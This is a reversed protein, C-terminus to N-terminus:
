HNLFGYELDSESFSVQWDSSQQFKNRLDERSCYVLFRTGSKRKIFGSKKLAPELRSDRCQNLLVDVKRSGAIKLAAKLLSGMAEVHAQLEVILLADLGNWRCKRVVMFGDLEGNATRCDILEYESSDPCESFRWKLYALDRKTRLTYRSGVEECLQAHQQTFESAPCTELKSPILKKTLDFASSYCLAGLNRFWLLLRKETYDSKLISTSIPKLYFNLEGQDIWGQRTFMAYAEDSVGLGILVDYRNMLFGILAVGLGKMKWETRVRLDVAYAADYEENGLALTTSIASQQGVVQEDAFCYVRRNRRNKLYMWANFRRDQQRARQGFEEQQFTLLAKEHVAPVEDFLADLYKHYFKDIVARQKQM